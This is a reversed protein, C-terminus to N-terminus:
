NNRNKWNKKQKTKNKNTAIKWKSWNSPQKNNPKRNKM